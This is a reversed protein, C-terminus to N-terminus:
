AKSTPPGIKQSPNSIPTPRALKSSNSSIIQSPNKNQCPHHNEPSRSIRHPSCRRRRALLHTEEPALAWQYALSYQRLQLESGPALYKNCAFLVLASPRLGESRQAPTVDNSSVDTKGPSLEQWSGEAEHGAPAPWEPRSSLTSVHLSPQRHPHCRLARPPFTSPRSSLTPRM